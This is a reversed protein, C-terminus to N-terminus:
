TSVCDVDWVTVEANAYGPTLCRRSGMSRHLETGTFSVVSTIRRRAFLESQSVVRPATALQDARFLLGDPTQEIDLTVPSALRHLTAETTGPILVAGDRVTATHADVGDVTAVRHRVAGAVVAVEAGTPTVAVDIPGFALLEPGSLLRSVDTSREVQLPSPDGAPPLPRPASRAAIGDIVASYYDAMEPDFTAVLVAGDRNKLFQVAHRQGDTLRNYYPVAVDLRDRFITACVALLVVAVGIGLWQNRAGAIAVLAAVAIGSLLPLAYLVRTVYDATGHLLVLDALVVVTAAAAWVGTRGGVVAAAVIGAVIVIGFWRADRLAFDMLLRLGATSPRISTAYDLDSYFGARALVGLGGLAAIGALGIATRRLPMANGDPRWVSLAAFGLWAVAVVQAAVLLWFPHTLAIAALALGALVFPRPAPNRFAADLPRLAVVLLALGLLMGAGYWGVAEAVMPSFAMAAAGVAVPAPAALRDRAFVAFAIALLIVLAYMTIRLASLDGAVGRAIRVMLPVAPLYGVEGPETRFVSRSRSLYVSADVSLYVAVAHVAQRTLWAAVAAAPLAAVLPTLARGLRSPM